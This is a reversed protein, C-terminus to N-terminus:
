ANNEFNIPLEEIQTDYYQEIEKLKKIDRRTVFNIGMGKRGWRGSRGIRHIYQHINKPIDFNIVKSVQQVDIGRATLNTSILVRTKGNCFEKYAEEREDKELASHISSVPFGDKQLAEALDAVRKISNCYIICQSVSLAAFLDKLTEYKTNDNEVAVYYQKIGELTIAETKVLIKVPDRMFKETLNQIELPLTASFLCLQVDNSLFQFINYVQEKFGSSLMEDAEDLIMLKITKTNIKKRRILDHVRGPTGVIIQPKNDLEKVDSDMSKGGIVLQVDLNEIFDGLNSCVKHIQIALERTPAMILAQIERKKEDVCQLASVTFAGTKGTGSQAQAIVDKNNIIPKIAKAQIPSPNEFGYSFIGRLLNDKLNLEDWNNAEQLDM